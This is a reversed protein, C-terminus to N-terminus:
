PDLESVLGPFEKSQHVSPPVIAADAKQFLQKLANADAADGLDAVLILGRQAQPPLASYLALWEEASAARLLIARAGASVANELSTKDDAFALPLMRMTRVTKALPDWEELPLHADVPVGDAGFYRARLADQRVRAPFLSLSPVTKTSRAGQTLRADPESFAFASINLGDLRAAEQAPDPADIRALLALSKRRTSVVQLLDRTSPIISGVDIDTM